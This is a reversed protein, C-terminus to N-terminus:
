KNEKIILGTTIADGNNTTFKGKTLKEVLKKILSSINEIDIDNSVINNSVIFKQIKNNIESIENDEILDKWNDDDRSKYLWKNDLFIYYYNEPIDKQQFIEENYRYPKNDKWSENCNIYPTEFTTRDGALIYNLIDEYNFLNYKIVFNKFISPNGGNHVYIDMYQNDGTNLFYIKDYTLTKNVDEDKLKIAVNCRM